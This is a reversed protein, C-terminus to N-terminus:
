NEINQSKTTLAIPSLTFYRKTFNVKTQQNIM